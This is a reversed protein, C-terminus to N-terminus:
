GDLYIDFKKLVPNIIMTRMDNKFNLTLDKIDNQLCKGKIEKQFM